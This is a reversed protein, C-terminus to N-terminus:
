MNWSFVYGQFLPCQRASGRKRTLFFASPVVNRYKSTEEIKTKREEIHM